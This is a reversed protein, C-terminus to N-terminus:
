KDKEQLLRIAEQVIHSKNYYKHNVLQKEIWKEQEPEITVSLKVSREGKKKREPM